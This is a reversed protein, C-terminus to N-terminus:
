SGTHLPDEEKAIREIMEQQEKLLLHFAPCREAQRNMERAIEVALLRRRPVSEGALERLLVQTLEDDKCAGRVLLSALEQHYGKEGGVGSPRWPPASVGAPPDYYLLKTPDDQPCLLRPIAKPKTSGTLFDDVRKMARMSVKGGIEKQLEEQLEQLSDRITEWGQPLDRLEIFRLDSAQATDQRDTPRCFDVAGLHAGRLDVGRLLLGTAGNLWANQFDAGVTKADSFDAAIAEVEVFKAGRLDSQRLDAASMGSRWFDAGLLHAGSLDAGLLEAERVDAWDLISRSLRAGGLHAKRLKAGRLDALRLDAGELHAEELDAERLDAMFLDAYRLDAGRLRAKYLRTGHDLVEARRMALTEPEPNKSLMQRMGDAGTVPSLRAHQLDAGEFIAGTLDAGRFDAYRLVARTFDAERLDRETLQVGKPRDTSSGEGKEGKSVEGGVLTHEVLSLSETFPRSLFSLKETRAEYGIGPRGAAFTSIYIAVVTLLAGGAWGLVTLVQAEMPDKRPGSRSEAQSNVPDSLAYVHSSFDYAREAKEEDGPLRPTRVYFYWILALDFLVLGKHWATIPASHHPLFKVQTAILLGVPLATTITVLLLWLLFRVMGPHKQGLLISVPLSPFFLDTEEDPPNDGQRLRVVKSVLLYELLLLHLHLFALLAPALVYFKDLPIQVDFLPLSISKGLLLLEDTTSAVAIGIYVCVALFTLTVAGIHQASENISAVLKEEASNAM